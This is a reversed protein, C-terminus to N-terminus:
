NNSKSKIYRRHNQYFNTLGYFLFIPQPILSPITITVKCNTQGLSCLNDYRQEIMTIKSNIVAFVIGLAIFFIGIIIFLIITGGVTPKPYYTKLLIQRITM